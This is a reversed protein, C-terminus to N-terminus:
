RIKRALTQLKPGIFVFLSTMVQIYRKMDEDATKRKEIEEQLSSQLAEIKDQSDDSETKHLLELDKQLLFKLHM